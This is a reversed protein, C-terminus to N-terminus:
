ECVAGAPAKTDVVAVYSKGVGLTLPTGDEMTYSFPDTVAKRVWKIPIMTGNCAFYGKGEGILDYYSRTYKGDNARSQAAVLVLVNKYTMSKGEGADKHEKGYQSAAYLGTEANYTMTTTKKGRFTITVKNATSGNLSIDDAFQLGYDVGAETVKDYNKKAVVAILDEGTTFLTHELAYGQKRREQDRFFYSGNYAQDIHEWNSLKNTKDYMGVLATRSGGCHVIPIDYSASVNNFYTRASRIPGINGVNTLDSYIALMRTIGGETEIEYIMDAGSIGYQPLAAKINNIVVATPRATYLADIPEGTLPNRYLVPPETPVTTEETPATTEVTQETTSAYPVEYTPGCACLLLCLVILLTVTRKM